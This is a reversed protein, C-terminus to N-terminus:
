VMSSGNFTTRKSAKLISSFYSIGEKGAKLGNYFRRPIHNGIQCFTKQSKNKRQASSIESSFWRLVMSSGNFTTRKSAKLISSFYSIGEKGAKLGNYFRRPIHNGIQCFTKQSKNKEQASSIESSFWQLVM